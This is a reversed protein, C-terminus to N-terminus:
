GLPRDPRDSPKADAHSGAVHPFIEHPEGARPARRRLTGGLGRRGLRLDEEPVCPNSDGSIKRSILGRNRPLPRKGLRRWYLGSIGAARRQRGGVNREAPRRAGPAADYVDMDLQLGERLCQVLRMKMVYDMGGHGEGISTREALLKEFRRWLPHDYRAFWKTMDLDWDDPKGPRRDRYPPIDPTFEM